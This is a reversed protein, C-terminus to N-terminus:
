GAENENVWVPDDNYFYSEVDEKTTDKSLQFLM